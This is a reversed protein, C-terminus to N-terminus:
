PVIHRELRAEVIRLDSSVTCARTAAATSWCRWMMSKFAMSIEPLKTSAYAMRWSRSSESSLPEGGFRRMMIARAPTGPDPFDVM